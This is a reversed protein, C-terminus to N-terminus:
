ARRWDSTQQITVTCKAGGPHILFRCARHNLTRPCQWTTPSTSNHSRYGGLSSVIKNVDTTMQNRRGERGTICAQGGMM